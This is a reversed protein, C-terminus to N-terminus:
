SQSIGGHTDFCIMQTGTNTRDGGEGIRDVGMGSAGGAIEDVEEGASLLNQL